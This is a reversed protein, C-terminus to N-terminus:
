AAGRRILFKRATGWTVGFREGIERFSAGAKRMAVAIQEDIAGAGWRHLMVHESQTMIELNSPHNNLSDGDIHHVIEDARLSRGIKQEAVVRHEMRQKRKGNVTVYIFRYATKHRSFLRIHGGSSPRGIGM